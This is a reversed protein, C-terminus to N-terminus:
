PRRLFLHYAEIKLGMRQWFLLAQLNTQLVSATITEVGQAYLAAITHAAMSGGIGHRRQGPAVYFEDIVGIRRSRRYWHAEIRVLAFGVFVGDTRALWITHTGADLGALWAAYYEEDWYGAPDTHPDFEQLYENMMQRLAPLDAATFFSITLM